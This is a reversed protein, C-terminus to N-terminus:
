DDMSALLSELQERAADESLAEVDTETDASVFEAVPIEDIPTHEVAPSTYTQSDIFASMLAITPYDFVITPSLDLDFTRRLSNRLSIASLSDVGAEFLPQDDVLQAEDCGLSEAVRSRVMAAVRSFREEPSLRKVSESFRVRRRRRTPILHDRFVQEDTGVAAAQQWDMKIVTLHPHEGSLDLSALGEEISLAELGSGVWAANEVDKAMGVSDWPGWDFVCIARRQGRRLEGLGQLASNAASYNAQGAPGLIASLSSFLWFLDIPDDATQRHLQWAGGVKAGLVKAFTPWRQDALLADDIVGASHIVGRLPGLSRAAQLMCTVGEATSVDAAVTRLQRGDAGLAELHDIAQQGVPQGRRSALVLKSAGRAVLWKAVELGIGSLGGTILYVGDADVTPPRGASAIRQLRPELRQGSRYAVDGSFNYSLERCLLGAREADSNRPDLDVRRCQLEPHETQIVRGLGYLAAQRPDGGQGAVGRAGSTVLNLTAKRRSRILARTLALAHAVVDLNLDSEAGDGDALASLGLPEVFCIDHAPTDSAESFFREWAQESALDFSWSSASIRRYSGDGTHSVNQCPLGWRRGFATSFAESASVLLAANTERSSNQPFPQWIPEYANDTTQSTQAQAAVLTIGFAGGLLRGTTDFQEVDARIMGEQRAIVTARSFVEGVPLSPLDVREISAPVYTGPADLLAAATHLCADLAAVDFATDDIARCEVRALARDAGRRLSRIRRFHSGYELGREALALYFADVDLTDQCDAELAAVSTSRTILSRPSLLGHAHKQWEEGVLSFLSFRQGDGSAELLVQVRRSSETPGFTMPRENAIESISVSSTLGCQQAAVLALNWMTTAALQARGSIRHEVVRPDACPLEGEYIPVPSSLRGILFADELSQKIQNTTAVPTLWYRKREFGYCPLRLRQRAYPQDFREWDVDFGAQYLRALSSCLVPWQPKDAEMASLWELQADPIALQALQTLLPRPGIELSASLELSPLTEAAKAFLVPQSIHDVWYDATDVNVLPGWDHRREGQRRESQRDDRRREDHLRRSRSRREAPTGSVCSIMQLRPRQFNTEAAIEAFEGLVPNMLPSHFAHSVHLPKTRIGEATLREGLKDVVATEGSIVVLQPGNIAALDVRDKVDALLPKINEATTHVTLMKGIQPLQQILRGRAGILRLGAELDFVGAAYAAAYEGVSHGIVVKPKIGWSAFLEFLAVQISFIAPQAYMTQRLREGDSSFIVEILSIPLDERLIENCRDLVERFRPATRYLEAGMQPWQSGQGTFLMALGADRSATEGVTAKSLEERAQQADNVAVAWRHAYHSRGANTTFCIDPASLERHSELHQRLRHINAQLAHKSRGSVCLVHASRENNTEQSTPSENRPPPGLAIHVNTGSLGLSTVGAIPASHSDSIWPTNASPVVLPLHEFGIKPNLSELRLHPPIQEHKLSLALKLLGAVGAAAELHGINTKIAGVGLRPGGAAVASREAGLSDAEIPDGLPTGTGHLEVYTAKSIDSGASRWADSIVQRQARANPVTLGSAAGDHSIASGHLLAMIDHGRAEADSLRRLVLVGCGEGRAIGNARADFTYCCGDPSLATMSALTLMHEPALILSVGGVIATDCEGALLSRRALHVAALSSSCVTDVTLAPGNTGLFFALRGAGFSLENAIAEVSSPKDFLGNKIRLLEYEKSYVGIFVGTQSNRLTSPAIAANELAEYATELLFRQQPDMAAAQAPSIDFFEADFEDADIEEIIGAHTTPCKGPQAPAEAFYQSADWRARPIERIGHDGATLMQWLQEPSNAGGPFRCSAGVIAIPEGLQGAGFQLDELEAVRAKLRRMAELARQKFAALQDVTKDNAM